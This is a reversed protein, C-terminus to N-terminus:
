VHARGIQSDTHGSVEIKAGSAACRAAITAIENLLPYSERHIEASATEFNIKGRALVARLEAQCDNAALPPAVKFTIEHQSRYGGPQSGTFATRTQQAVPESSAEGKLTTNTNNLAYSGSSLRALNTLGGTM